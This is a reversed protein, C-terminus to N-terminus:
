FWVGTIGPSGFRLITVRVDWSPDPKPAKLQPTMRSRWAAPSDDQRRVLMGAEGSVRERLYMAPKPAAMNRREGVAMCASLMAKVPKSVAPSVQGPTVSEPVPPEKDAEM